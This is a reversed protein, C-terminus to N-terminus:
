VSTLAAAIAIDSERLRLCQDALVHTTAAPQAVKKDIRLGV